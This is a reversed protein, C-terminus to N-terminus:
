GKKNGGFTRKYDKSGLTKKYDRVERLYEELEKLEKKSPLKGNKPFIIEKWENTQKIRM